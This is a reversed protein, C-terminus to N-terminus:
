GKPKLRRGFRALGVLGTGLPPMTASEPVPNIKEYVVENACNVTWGIYFAPMAIVISNLPSHKCSAIVLLILFLLRAGRSALRDEFM